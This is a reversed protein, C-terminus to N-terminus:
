DLIKRVSQALEKLRYPKPLFGNCGRDLIQQAEGNISYGSSLLVRIEPNIERLCDFIKGGSMGPLIM